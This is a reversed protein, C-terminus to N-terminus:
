DLLEALIDAADRVLKPCLTRTIDTEAAKRRGEETSLDCDILDRCLLAGTRDRFRRAFERVTDRVVDKARRDSADVGGLRLGIVMFAGTVAGCTEGMSGMGGGFGSAVRLATGRDIGASMGCATLVSQACNFGGNFLGEAEDARSEM